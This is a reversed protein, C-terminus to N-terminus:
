IQDVTIGHKKELPHPWYTCVTNRKNRRRDLLRLRARERKIAELKFPDTKLTYFELGANFLPTYTAKYVAQRDANEYFDKWADGQKYSMFDSLMVLSKRIGDIHRADIPDMDKFRSLINSEYRSLDTNWGWDKFQDAILVVDRWSQLMLKDATSTM